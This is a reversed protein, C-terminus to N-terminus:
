PLQELTQSDLAITILTKGNGEETLNQIRGQWDSINIAIDGPFTTDPKVRVADDVQLESM